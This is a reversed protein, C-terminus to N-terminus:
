SALFCRQSATGKVKMDFADLAFKSCIAAAESAGICTMGPPCVCVFCSVQKLVNLISITDFSVSLHKVNALRTHDPM